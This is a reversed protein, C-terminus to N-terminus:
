DDWEDRMSRQYAVPDIGGFIGPHSGFLRSLKPRNPDAAREAARKLIAQIEPDAAIGEARKRLIEAEWAADEVEDPAPPINETMKTDAAGTAPFELIVKAPGINATMPLDFDLHLRRNAPIEITQEITM